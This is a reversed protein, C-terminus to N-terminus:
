KEKANPKLVFTFIRIIIKGNNKMRALLLNHLHYVLIMGNNLSNVFVIIESIVSVTSTTPILFASEDFEKLTKIKAIMQIINQQDM